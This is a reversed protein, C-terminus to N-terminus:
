FSFHKCFEVQPELHSGPFFFFFSFYTFHSCLRYNLQYHPVLTLIRSRDRVTTTYSALMASALYLTNLLDSSCKCSKQLDVILGFKFTWLLSVNRGWTLMNVSLFIYLKLFFFLENWSTVAPVPINTFYHCNQLSDCRNSSSHNRIVFTICDGDWCQPFYKCIRVVILLGSSPSLAVRRNKRPFYNLHKGIDLAPISKTNM